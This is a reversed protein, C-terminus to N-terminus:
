NARGAGRDFLLLLVGMGKSIVRYHKGTTNLPKLSFRPLPFYGLASHLCITSVSSTTICNKWWTKVWLSSKSSGLSDSDDELLIANNPSMTLPICGAVTVDHHSPRQRHCCSSAINNTVDRFIPAPLQSPFHPQGIVKEVEELSARGGLPEMGEVCVPCSAQYRSHGCM